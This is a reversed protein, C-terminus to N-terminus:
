VQLFDDTYNVQNRYRALKRKYVPCNTDRASHQCDKENYKMKICNPCKFNTRTCDKAAHEESCKHCCQKENCYKSVHGFSCCRYCIALNLHEQVFVKVLDFNVKEKKLFWKAINPPAQLIWNEKNPNRCQRKAIVKIKDLVKYGLELEVENNLHILEKIFDNDSFGKDIGTILFMPDSQQAEKLQVNEKDKLALKLKDQQLKNHSEVVIAGNKLHRISKFGGDIDKPNITKKLQQTVEKADSIDQMRIVTELKRSTPPTTWKESDNITGKKEPTPTVLPIHKIATTSAYTKTKTVPLEIMENSNQHQKVAALQYHLSTNINELNGLKHVLLTLCKYISTSARRVGKQDDKSFIFCDEDKNTLEQIKELSSFVDSIIKNTSVTEQQDTESNDTNKKDRYCQRKYMNINEPSTESRPRKNNDDMTELEKDNTYSLPDKPTSIPPTHQISSRPKFIANPDNFVEDQDLNPKYKNSEGPLIDNDKKDTTTKKNHKDVDTRLSRTEIGIIKNIEELSVNLAGASFSRIGKALHCKGKRKETNKLQGGDSSADM